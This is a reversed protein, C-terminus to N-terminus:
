LWCLCSCAASDSCSCAATAAACHRDALLSAVCMKGRAMPLGPCHCAKGQLRSLRLHKILMNWREATLAAPLLALSWLAQVVQYPSLSDASARLGACVGEITASSPTYGLVAWPRLFSSLEQMGTQTM